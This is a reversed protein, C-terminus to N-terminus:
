TPRTSSRPTVAATARGTAPSPRSSSTDPGGSTSPARPYDLVRRGPEVGLAEALGPDAAVLSPRFLRRYDPRGTDSEDTFVYDLGQILGFGPQLTEIEWNVLERLRGSSPQSTWGIPVWSPMRHIRFPGDSPVDKEADRIAGAVGSERGFDSRPITIVLRANAVALDAALLAVAAAGAPGIRRSSWAMVVVGLALAVAGHALGGIMEGVASSAELPGFVAHTLERAAMAALLRDRLVAVGALCVATLVFLGIAIAFTRRRGVGAAVRDWGAGALASLAMATFVLVKFPFRFLRLAPLATALLGYFSGDGATPSPAGAMWPAPGAFEGLGAWLSLLAVATMWGRWAPRGRFGSAGLALVIPLAGAYLSLPSPRSAGAPPLIPMWYHNGATFTGFVNPWIGEVVRYPLLSSDYLDGPRAEAWRLSAAMQELVPLVQVSALLLSLAGAIALGLLMAMLRARDGARRSAAYAVIGLVWAM